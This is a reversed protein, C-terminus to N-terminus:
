TQINKRETKAKYKRRNSQTRVYDFHHQESTFTPNKIAYDMAKNSIIKQEEETLAKKKYYAPLAIVTGGEIQITPELHNKLYQIRQPTLFNTGLNKSMRSYEPLRDDNPDDSVFYKQKNVYGCVYAISNKTVTDAQINGHKWIQQILEPTQIYEPPLNFLISHFHPRETKGGYEGVM